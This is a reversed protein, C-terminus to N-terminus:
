SEMFIDWCCADLMLLVVILSNCVKVFVIGDPPVTTNFHVPIKKRLYIIKVSGPIDHFPLPSKLSPLKNM